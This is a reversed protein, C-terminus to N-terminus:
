KLKMIPKNEANFLFVECGNYKAYEKLDAILEKSIDIPTYVPIRFFVRCISGLNRIRINYEKGLEELTKM